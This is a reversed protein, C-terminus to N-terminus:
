LYQYYWPIISVEMCGQCKYWNTTLQFWPDKTLWKKELALNAQRAQNHSDITNSDGLFHSIVALCEVERSCFNGFDDTYKMIYPNGSKTSGAHATM